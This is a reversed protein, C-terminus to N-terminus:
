LVNLNIIKEHNQVHLLASSGGGFTVKISVLSYITFYVKEYRQLM